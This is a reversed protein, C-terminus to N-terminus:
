PLLRAVDGVTACRQVADHKIAIMLRDRLQCALDSLKDQTMGLDADLSALPNGYQPRLRCPPVLGCIDLLWYVVNTAETMRPSIM